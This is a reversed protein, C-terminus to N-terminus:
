FRGFGVKSGKPIKIKPISCDLPFADFLGSSQKRSKGAVTKKTPSKKTTKTKKVATKKKGEIKELRDDHTKISHCNSCLARGNRTVTRGKDAWGKHHDFQTARPDLPKKCIACKSNQQFLIENQQTKGFSRRKDRSDNKTTAAFPDDFGFM